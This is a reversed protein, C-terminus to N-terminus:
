KGQKNVVVKDVKTNFLSEAMKLNPNNLINEERKKIKEEHEEDKINAVSRFSDEQGKLDFNLVVQEIDVGYYEGFEKSLNKQIELQSLYEFFVKASKPFGIEVVLNESIIKPESNINGQELNHGTVPSINHVHELFGKWSKPVNATPIKKEEPTIEEISETKVEM